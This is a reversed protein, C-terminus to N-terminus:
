RRRREGLVAALQAQEDPSLPPPTAGGRRSRYFRVIAVGGLALIVVPGGWLLIAVVAAALPKPDAAQEGEGPHLALIRRSIETRAAEAQDGAILGRAVDREVEALQDRYVALNYADRSAPGGRRLLLPVLLMALTLSTLGLLAVALGGSM